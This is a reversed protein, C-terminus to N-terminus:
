SIFSLYCIYIGVKFVWKFFWIYFALIMILLLVIILMILVYDGYNFTQCNHNHYETYNVSRNNFPTM